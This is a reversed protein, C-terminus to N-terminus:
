RVRAERIGSNRNGQRRQELALWKRCSALGLDCSVAIAPQPKIRSAAPVSASASAVVPVLADASAPPVVIAAVSTPPVLVERAARAVLGGATLSMMFPNAHLVAPSLLRPLPLTADSQLVKIAGGPGLLYALRLNQFTAPHGAGILLAANDKTFAEAARRSFDMNTRLGLIQSPTLNATEAAFHRRAVILFTQDIFQFPGLATSRSNKATLKGGSEARM